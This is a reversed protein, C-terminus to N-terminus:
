KRRWIFYLMGVLVFAFVAYIILSEFVGKDPAGVPSTYIDFKGSRVYSDYVWNMLYQVSFAAILSLIVKKLM